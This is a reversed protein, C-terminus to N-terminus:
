AVNTQESAQNQNSPERSDEAYVIQDLGNEKASVLAKNAMEILATDTNTQESYSACGISITIPLTLNDAFVFPEQTIDTKLREAFMKVSDLSTQPLILGMEKGNYRCAYDITRLATLLRAGLERLVMDSVKHSHTENIQNFNDIGVLLLSIPHKFRNSRTVESKLNEHFIRRNWLGTLSDTTALAKLAREDRAIKRLIINLQWAFFISLIIGMIFGAFTTTTSNTTYALSTFAAGAWMSLAVGSVLKLVTYNIPVGENKHRRYQAYAIVVSAITAIVGYGMFYIGHMAGFTDL